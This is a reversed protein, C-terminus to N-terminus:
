LLGEKDKRNCNPCINKGDETIYSRIQPQKCEYCTLLDSKKGDPMINRNQKYIYKMKNVM